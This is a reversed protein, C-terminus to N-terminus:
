GLRAIVLLAFVGLAILAVLEADLWDRWKM